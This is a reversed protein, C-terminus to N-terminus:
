NRPNYSWTVSYIKWQGDRKVLQWAEVGDNQVKGDVVFEYDFQMWALERDQTIRINTFREEVPRKEQRLYNVFDHFGGARIGDTTPDAKEHIMRLFQEEAPSVFLINSNLLLTALQKHNKTKLASQFEEAVQGIAKIEEPKNAPAASAATAYATCALLSALILKKMGGLM